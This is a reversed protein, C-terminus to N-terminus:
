IIPRIKRSALFHFEEVLRAHYNAPAVIERLCRHLDLRAFKRWEREMYYNFPHEDPLSPDFVKIFALVDKAIFDKALNASESGSEPKSGVTRSRDLDTSPFYTRIGNWVNFAEQCFHGNLGFSSKAVPLYIVPRGGWEAVMERDVGVGFQGYKASHLNLSSFPIDCLCVVTQAIPEGDVCGRSPDVSLTAGGSHGAVSNTRIEMSQLIARLTEFNRDDDDPNRNGVLHYLIRSTYPASM